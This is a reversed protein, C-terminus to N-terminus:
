FHVSFGVQPGQSLVDYKFRHLGSGTEYDTQIFRYGLQVSGWKTFQWNFYPFAQWTFDSGGWKLGGIDGDVHFTITKWVPLTFRSGIIPDWWAETHSPQFRLPGNISLGVSDYTTGVFADFYQCVRYELAPQVMWQTVSANVPGDNGALDMYIVDTSLAWRDYGVRVTGMATMKLNDWVKSFPVNVDSNVPGLGATGSMGAAFGYLSADFSWKSTCDCCMAPAAALIYNDSSDVARVAPSALATALTLGFLLQHKM